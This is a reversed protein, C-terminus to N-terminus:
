IFYRNCYIKTKNININYLTHSLRYLNSIAKKDQEETRPYCM